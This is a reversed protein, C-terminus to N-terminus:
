SVVLRCSYYWATVAGKVTECAFGIDQPVPRARDPDLYVNVYPRPTYNYHPTTAILAAIRSSLDLGHSTWRFPRRDDAVVDLVM